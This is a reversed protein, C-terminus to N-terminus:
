CSRKFVILRAYWIEFAINSGMAPWRLGKIGLAGLVPALDGDHVFVHSYSLGSTGNAVKELRNIIEGIFLGEVLQIYLTANTNTRWYYNWEWDGARFVMDSQATTVCDSSNKISCPLAYGNCLRGQFNDSFHDYTASWSSEKAGLMVELSEQLSQTVKLHEEWEPTAEMASLVTNIAPCYSAYGENVTDVSSTQQHLPLAGHYNPWIGRLVGGATQQTLATESSRLLVTDDPVDPLLGLKEGYVAWLDKGHQYGDLLGGITLQPFQCSGKAYSSVFPNNPDTYTVAYVPM